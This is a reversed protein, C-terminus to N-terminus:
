TLLTLVFDKWRDAFFLILLPVGFFLLGVGPFGSMPSNNIKKPM